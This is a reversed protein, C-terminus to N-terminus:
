ANARSSNITSNVGAPFSGGKTAKKPTLYVVNLVQDAGRSFAIGNADAAFDGLQVVLQGGCV